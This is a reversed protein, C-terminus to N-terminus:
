KPLGAKRLGDIHHELDAPNTYPETKAWREISFKPYVNLFENAEARAEELRGLQAYTIALQRRADLPVTIHQLTALAEDYRHLLYYAAALNQYYYDPCNPNLCIAEKALEVADESREVYTLADAMHALLGADNPNLAKAREFETIAQTQQNKYLFVFGLTWHARYDSPDLHVARRALKLAKALLGEPDDVGFNTWRTYM